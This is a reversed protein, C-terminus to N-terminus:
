RYFRHGEQEFCFTKHRSIWSDVVYTAEFYLAYHKIEGQELLALAKHVDLDPVAVTFKGNTVTSFQGSQYIIDKIAEPFDESDSRNIITKMVNGQAKPSGDGHEAVAIRMLLQADEYDVEVIDPNNKRVDQKCTYLLSLEQDTLYHIEKLKMTDIVEPVERKPQPVFFVGLLLGAGLIGVIRKRYDM